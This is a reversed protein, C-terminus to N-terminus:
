RLWLTAVLGAFIPLAYALRPGDSGELSVESLPRLGAVRWHMLLLSVNSLARRFYGSGLAVVIAMVGGAVGTYLALWFAGVPGLWAGIAALLKVDGAGLGGLAFPIFFAAAGILWGLAASGAGSWGGTIAGYILGAAAAGFTLVNPIRRSRVDTICAILGVGVVVASKLTLLENM